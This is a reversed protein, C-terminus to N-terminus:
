LDDFSNTLREKVMTGYEEAGSALEDFGKLLKMREYWETIRPFDESINFGLSILFATSSCFAFDAITANDGVFYDHGELFSEMVNLAKELAM